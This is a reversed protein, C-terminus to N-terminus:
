SFNTFTHLKSQPNETNGENNEYLLKLSKEEPSSFVSIRLLFYRPTHLLPQQKEYFGVTVRGINKWQMHIYQVQSEKSIYRQFAM